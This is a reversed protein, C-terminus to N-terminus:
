TEFIFQMFNSTKACQHAFAIKRLNQLFDLYKRKENNEAIKHNRAIESTRKIKLFLELFHHIFEFNFRDSDVISWGAPRECM